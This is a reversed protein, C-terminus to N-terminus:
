VKIIPKLIYKTNVKRDQRIIGNNNNDLGKVITVKGSIFVKKKNLKKLENYPINVVYGNLYIGDKTANKIDITTIFNAVNDKKRNLSAYSGTSIIGIDCVIQSTDSFKIQLIAQDYISDFNYKGILTETKSICDYNTITLISDRFTWLSVNQKISDKSFKLKSLGFTTTNIIESENNITVSTWTTTNLNDFFLTQGFSTSSIFILFILIIHNKMAHRDKFHCIVTETKAITAIKV